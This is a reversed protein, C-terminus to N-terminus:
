WKAGAAVMAARVLADLPSPWPKLLRHEGSELPWKLGFVSRGHSQADRIRRLQPYRRCPRRTALQRDGRRALTSPV